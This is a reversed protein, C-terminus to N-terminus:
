AHVTSRSMRTLEKMVLRLEQAIEQVRASASVLTGAAAETELQLCLESLRSAGLMASSSKLGHVVRHLGRLDGASGTTLLEGLIGPACGLYSTVARDLLTSGNIRVTRLPELADEDLWFPEYEPEAAEAPARTSLEAPFFRRLVAALDKPRMPKSVFDDMGAALCREREGTTASATLAVIPLHTTSGPGAENRRIVTTAEFGDM